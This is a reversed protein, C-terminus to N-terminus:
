NVKKKHIKKKMQIKILKSLITNKIPKLFQIICVDVSNEDYTEEVFKWNEQKQADDMDMGYRCLM